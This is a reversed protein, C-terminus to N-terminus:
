LISPEHLHEIKLITGSANRWKTFPLEKAAIRMRSCLEVFQLWVTDFSPMDDLSLDSLRSRLWDYMLSLPLKAKAADCYAPDFAMKRFDLCVAMRRFWRADSDPARLRLDLTEAMKKALTSLEKLTAEVEQTPNMEARSATARSIRRASSPQLDVTLLSDDGDEDSARPDPLSLQLQKLEPLHKSLLEFVPVRKGESRATPPLTRSIDCRSLDDGIDGILNVHKTIHEETEWPLEDVTQLILSLNKVHQLIDVIGILHVVFVVTAVTAILQQDSGQKRLDSIFLPLNRFFSKMVKRESHCFRTTCISGISAPQLYGKLESAAKRVRELGKGYLYKEHVNSITAAMKMYFPFASRVSNMALEIRHAGDWRSMVFSVSLKAISCFHSCVDLGSVHGEHQGQYQGDFAFGTLSRQLLEASLSLPADKTLTTHLLDALGFGTGDQAILVSLFIPTLVGSLMVIIGVMQGTRHLVTAKDAMVSFAPPRKTAPDPETLLRTFTSNLVARMSKRLRPVFGRSHNKTGVNQGLAKATAVSREYSKDSQHEKVNQLVLRALSLGAGQRTSENSKKEAAHLSCWEHLDCAFHSKMSYRVVSMGRRVRNDSPRRSFDTGLIVGAGEREEGSRMSVGDKLNNPAFSSYRQHRPPSPPRTHLSHPIHLTSHPTHHTIYSTHPPYLPLLLTHHITPPPPQPPPSNSDPTHRFCDDCKLFNENADWTVGDIRGLDAMSQARDITAMIGGMRSNEVSQRVLLQENEDHARVAAPIAATLSGPLEGVSAKLGQLELAIVGMMGVLRAITGQEEVPAGTSGSGMATTFFPPPMAHTAAAGLSGAGLSKSPEASRARKSTGDHRNMVIPAPPGDPSHPESSPQPLAWTGDFFAGAARQVDYSFARLLEDVGDMELQYGVLAHLQNRKELWHAPPSSAGIATQGTTRPSSGAYL